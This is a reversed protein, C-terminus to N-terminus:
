VVKMVFEEILISREVFEIREWHRKHIETDAIQQARAHNTEGVFLCAIGTQWEYYHPHERSPKIRAVFRHVKRMYHNSIVLSCRSLGGLFVGEWGRM